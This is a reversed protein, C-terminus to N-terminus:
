WQQKKTVASASESIEVTSVEVLRNGLMDHVNVHVSLRFLFGHAFNINVLHLSVHRKAFRSDGRCQWIVEIMSLRSMGGGGKNDTVGYDIHVEVRM